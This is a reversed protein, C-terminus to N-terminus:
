RTNPIHLAVEGPARGAEVIADRLLKADSFRERPLTAMAREVVAMWARPVPAAARQVGSTREREFEGAAVGPKIPVGALCEYLVAGLAFVDSRGDVERGQEQEPSMYGPTGVAGEAGTLRTEAWEVRAIGFDLIKVRERQEAAPAGRPHRALFINGPKLDRHIVGAAHVASLADCLEVFMPVLESMPLPARRRLRTALSEGDLLEMALFTTGDPLVGQEYLEVVNPHWALGMAEAERRLRDSAVADHAVAARLLKIAVPLNDSLRTAQHIVGSAGSGLTAGLRYLGAIVAGEGSAVSPPAQNDRLATSRELARLRIEQARAEVRGERDRRVLLGVGAGVAAGIPVSAAVALPHALAGLGGALAGLASGVAVAASKPRVDWSVDFEQGAAGTRTAFTARHTSVTQVRAPELGFLVPVAALETERALALLGDREIRPDHAVFVRGRWRGSGAELTEWRSTRVEDGGYGDLQRFADEPRSTGRLVRMWVALNAPAVVGRWTQRLEDRGWRGVFAELARHLVAVGIPKTEEALDERSLKLTSLLADAEAAGRAAELYLVLAKIRSASTDGAPYSSRHM